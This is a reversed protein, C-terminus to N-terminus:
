CCNSCRLILYVPEPAVVESCHMFLAVVLFIQRCCLKGSEGETKDFTPCFIGSISKGNGQATLGIRSPDLTPILLTSVMSSSLLAKSNAQSYSSIAKISCHISPPSYVTDIRLPM